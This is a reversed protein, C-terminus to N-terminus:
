KGKQLFRNVAREAKELIEYNIKYNMFKGEKEQKVVGALRLVKLHQSTISQEIKLMNYINNVHVEGQEDIQKLIQLRLPHALARMLECSYDLKESSFLVKTNEM